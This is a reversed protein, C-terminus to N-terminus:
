RRSSSGRDSGRLVASPSVGFRQKFQAAFDGLHVFGCGLATATVTTADPAAAALLDHARDLREARLWERPSLGVERRFGIQLSRLSVDCQRAVDALSLPESLHALMYEMARRVRSTSPSAATGGFRDSLNSPHSLLLTEVLLSDLQHVLRLRGDLRPDGVLRVAAEILALLGGSVRHVALEFQVPVSGTTGALVAATREVRRRDLRLVIQDFEGDIEFRFDGYPSVVSATGAELIAAQGGYRYRARGSIPLTLLFNDEEPTVESVTVDAGYYLRNLSLSGSGLHDLRTALRGGRGRLRLAHPRLASTCADVVADANETAALLRTGQGRVLNALEAISM